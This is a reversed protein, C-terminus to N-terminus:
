TRRKRQSADKLEKGRDNLAEMYVKFTYADMNLINEIPIGVEISIRAAM